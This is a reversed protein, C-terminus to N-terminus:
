YVPVAVPRVGLNGRAMLWSLYKGPSIHKSRLLEAVIRYLQNKDLSTLGSDTATALFRMVSADLGARTRGFQRLLRVCIYIRESGNRYMTSAWELCAAVLADLDEIIQLCNAALPLFDTNIPVTDLLHILKQRPTNPPRWTQSEESVRFLRQNRKSIQEFVSNPRSDDEGIYQHLISEYKHWLRPMLFWRPHSILISKLSEALQLILTGYIDNDPGDIARMVIILRQEVAVQYQRIHIQNIQELLAEVLRRGRQRHRLLEAWHIQMVLMWIPLSDVDCAQLSSLIWGLYHDRDLLHESRLHSVLRLRLSLHTSRSLFLSYRGVWLRHPVEM